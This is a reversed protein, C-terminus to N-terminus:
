RGRTLARRLFILLAAGGTALVLNVVILMIGGDPKNFGLLGAVFSGVIAGLVGLLFDSLFSRDRAKMFRRALDGAIAGIILWGIIIFPFKIIFEVTNAIFEM